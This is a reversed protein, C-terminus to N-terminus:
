PLPRERAEKATRELIKLAFPPPIGGILAQNGPASLNLQLLEYEASSVQKADRASGHTKRAERLIGM